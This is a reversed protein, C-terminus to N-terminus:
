GALDDSSLDWKSHSSKSSSGGFRQRKAHPECESSLSTAQNEEENVNDNVIVKEDISNKDTM